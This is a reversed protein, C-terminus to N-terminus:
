PKKKKQKEFHNQIGYKPILNAAQEAFRIETPCRKVRKTPPM